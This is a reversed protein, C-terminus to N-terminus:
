LSCFLSSFFERRENAGRLATDRRIEEFDTMGRQADNRKSGASDDDDDDDDDVDDNAGYRKKGWKMSHEEGKLPVQDM